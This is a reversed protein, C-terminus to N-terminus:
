VSGGTRCRAGGRLCAPHLDAAICYFLIFNVYGLMFTFLAESRIVVKPFCFRYMFSSKPDWCALSLIIVGPMSAWTYRWWVLRGNRWPTILRGQPLANSQCPLAPLCAPMAAPIGASPSFLKFRHALVAPTISKILSTSQRSLLTCLLSGWM